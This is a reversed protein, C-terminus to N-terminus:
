DSKAGAPVITMGAGGFVVVGGLGKICSKVEGPEIGVLRDDLEYWPILKHGTDYRGVLLPLDTLLLCIIETKKQTLTM